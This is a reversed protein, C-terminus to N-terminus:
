VSETAKTLGLVQEFVRVARQMEDMTGVSIRAHTKELPPFERGVSVQHKKCAKLFQKAPRDIKVFVFNAQSDTIKLGNARFFETTFKRAQQNRVKERALHASDNFVAAATAIGLVNVAVTLKYGAMKSIAAKHGVAYGVRLGAMGFAKSFTRSVCVRPRTLALPAATAYSPDTVYEHYAEDILIATRPSFQRLRSVFREVAEFSHVTGTPNNPNCLFVLGAGHAAREMTDLDLGLERDVPVAEIPTGIAKAVQVPREFSPNATVLPRNPSTFARVANRLIESSGAGMVVNAPETHFEKALMKQLSSSSQRSNMPYRSVQDMEALLAAIGVRGPGLPNENSSLRIEGTDLPPVAEPGPGHAAGTEGIWAERGRATIWHSPVASSTLGSASLFHRRSLRM